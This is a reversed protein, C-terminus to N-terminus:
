PTCDTIPNSKIAARGVLKISIQKGDSEGRDDCIAYVAQSTEDLTGDPKYVLYSNGDANSMVTVTDHAANGIGIITDTASNYADNADGKAYVIWGTTWTNATGGCAPTTATPDASRCMVTKVKRKVAEARAINISELMNYMQSKLRNNAIFQGLNPLAIAAMVAVMTMVIMLEIFTFGNASLNKINKNMLKIKNQHQHTHFKM